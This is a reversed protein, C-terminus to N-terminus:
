GKKDKSMKYLPLHSPLMSTHTLLEFMTIKGTHCNKWSPLYRMVTDTLAIKGEELLRMFALTVFIKTCSALDFLTHETVMEKTEALTGECHYEPRIERGMYACSAGTFVKNEINDKLLNEVRKNM